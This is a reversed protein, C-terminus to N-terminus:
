ESRVWSAPVRMAVDYTPTTRENRSSCPISAVTVLSSPATSVLM